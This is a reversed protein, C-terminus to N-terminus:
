FCGFQTTKSVKQSKKITWDFFESFCLQQLYFDDIIDLVELVDKKLTLTATPSKKPFRAEVMKIIGHNFSNQEELYRYCIEKLKVASM